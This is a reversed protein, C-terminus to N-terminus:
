TESGYLLVAQVVVKLFIYRLGQTHTDHKRGVRLLRHIIKWVKGFSM